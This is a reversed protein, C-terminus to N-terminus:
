GGHCFRCNEIQSLRDIRHARPRYPSLEAHCTVCTYKRELAVQHSKEYHWYGSRPKALQASLNHCSECSKGGSFNQQPLGPAMKASAPLAQPAKKLKATIARAAVRGMVISPGLFTGELAAKGNIGGFGTVEGAAYLGPIPKGQRDLVRCSLDVKVGGMSKRTIPFFQVAYFPPKEIKQPRPSGSSPFRAFESDRGEEVMRNYSKVTEALAAPPLGVQQALDELTAASKVLDRNDFVVTQIQAFDSWGALTVGFSRKGAEDFVSWYTMNKQALLAPLSDKAGAFENVFRKGEANVWIGTPNFSALGRRGSPDRPDPLGLAYNWQHDLHFLVAGAKQALAHGSGVANRGTGALLRKPAPLSKPWHELVMELNSQFGGTALITAAARFTRRSQTRLNQGAVGVVRGGETLLDTVRTNWIFTINPNRLCERYIPGVLGLGKGKTFHYRPISNGDMRIVVSFSVGMSTLWDYIEERSHYAYYRAWEPDADEGWQLFDKFAIEPDDKIKWNQQFPTGVICLNGGSVVAHGGFVSSMELVTVKAGNRAAELAASLGSIGAGVVVIDAGQRPSQAYLNLGTQLAIAFAIRVLCTNRM